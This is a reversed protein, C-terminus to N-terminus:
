AKLNIYASSSPLTKYFNLAEINLATIKAGSSSTMEYVNSNSVQALTSSDIPAAAAASAFPDNGASLESAYTAYDITRINWDSMQGALWVTDTGLGGDMKLTSNKAFYIDDNRQGGLITKIDKGYSTVVNNLNKMQVNVGTKGDSINSFLSRLEKYNKYQDATFTVAQASPDNANEPTTVNIRVNTKIFKTSFTQQIADLNSSLNEVSDSIKILAGASMFAKMLEKHNLLQESDIGNGSSGVITKDKTSFALKSVFGNALMEQVDDLNNSYNQATDKLSINVKGVLTADKLTGLSQQNGSIESYTGTINFTVSAPNKGSSFADAFEQSVQSAKVNITGGGMVSISTIDSIQTVLENTASTLNKNINNATDVINVDGLGSGLTTQLGTVTNSKLFNAFGAVSDSIDVIVQPATIDSILTEAFTKGNPNTIGAQRLSMKFHQPDPDTTSISDISGSKFMSEIGSLNSAINSASDEVTLSSIIDAKTKTAGASDTWTLKGQTILKNVLLADKANFSVPSPNDAVVKIKSESIANLLSSNQLHKPEIVLGSSSQKTFQIDRVFGAEALDAIADLNAKINDTSDKIVFPSPSDSNLNDYYVQIAQEATYTPVSSAKSSLSVITSSSVNSQTANSSASTNYASSYSYLNQAAPAITTM